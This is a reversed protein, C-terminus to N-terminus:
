APGSWLIFEFLDIDIARLLGVTAIMAETATVAESASPPLAAGARVRGAYLRIAQALLAQVADASLAEADVEGGRAALQGTLALLREVRASLDTVDAAQAGLPAPTDVATM